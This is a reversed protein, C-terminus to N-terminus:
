LDYSRLAYTRAYPICTTSYINLNGSGVQGIAQVAEHGSKRRWAHRSLGIPEFTKADDITGKFPIM